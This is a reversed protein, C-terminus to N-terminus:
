WSGSPMWFMETPTSRPTCSTYTMPGSAPAAAPTSFRGPPYRHPNVSPSPGHPSKM